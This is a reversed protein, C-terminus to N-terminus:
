VFTLRLLEDACTTIPGQLNRINNERDTGARNLGVAKIPWGTMDESPMTNRESLLKKIIDAAICAPEWMSKVHSILNILAHQEVIDM